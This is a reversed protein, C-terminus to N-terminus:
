PHDNFYAKMCDEIPKSQTYGRRHGHHGCGPFETPSAQAEETRRVDGNVCLLTTGAYSWRTFHLVRQLDTHLPVVVTDMDVKALSIRSLLPIM